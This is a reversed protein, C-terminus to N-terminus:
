GVVSHFCQLKESTVCHEDFSLFTFISDQDNEGIVVQVVSARADVSDDAVVQPDLM